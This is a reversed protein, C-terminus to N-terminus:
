VSLWIPRTFLYSRDKINILCHRARPPNYDLPVHLHLKPYNLIQGVSQIRSSPPPIIQHAIGSHPSMVCIHTHHVCAVFVGIFVIFM